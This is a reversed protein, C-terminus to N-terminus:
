PLPRLQTAVVWSGVQKGLGQGARCAFRFHLGAQVRSDANEDAAQAFSTFRRPGSGPAASTSTFAFTTADGFVHALVEAAANGLASHTSPYDQVPPTVEEAQWTPDPATAPNGDSDAAQIATTPRWFDYHFKSDWGAVYADSMAINILAFLRATAQLGLKQDTAVTRAVRNWGIDSFEYWFKAYGTQEASRATSGKQGLSKVENFSEAYEASDLAPPPAVRFQEPSQMGFPKLSRWGPSALFDFPPVPRYSGPGAKQAQEATFPVVATTDGGDGRRRDLIAAAARQGLAVGRERAGAEPLAALTRQLRTSLTARQGPLEAVLVEFAASAAAAVPDADPARETLAHAGYAPRIAALADHQALHVMSLVRAARMPNGYKEEAVLGDYAAVSWDVVPANSGDLASPTTSGGASGKCAVAGLLLLTLAVPVLTFFSSTSRDFPTHERRTMAIEKTPFSAL